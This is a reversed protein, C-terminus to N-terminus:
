VNIVPFRNILYVFSVSSVKIIEIAKNQLLVLVSPILNPVEMCFNADNYILLSLAAIAGSVIHPSPSSLYGMVQWTSNYLKSSLTAVLNLFVQWTSNYLKCSSASVLNLFICLYSVDRSQSICTLCKYLM